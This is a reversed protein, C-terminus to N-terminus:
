YVAVRCRDVPMASPSDARAEGVKPALFAMFLPARDTPRQARESPATPQRIEAGDRRPPPRTGRPRRAVHHSASSRRPVFPPKTPLCYVAEFRLPPRTPLCYVAEFRLPPRTPLCDLAVRDIPEAAPLRDVAKRAIVAGALDRRVARGDNRRGVARRVSSPSSASSSSREYSPCMSRTRVSTTMGPMPPRCTASAMRIRRGPTPM